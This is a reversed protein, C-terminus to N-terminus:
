NGKGTAGFVRVTLWVSVGMFLVDRLVTLLGSADGGTTSFCGCYVDLGRFLNFALASIFVTLLGTSIITAGPLWCGFILCLGVLLELFPLILAALNVLAHPLIQYNYVAKAFDAPNLIKDQAAYLFMAGLLFRLGMFIWHGSRSPQSLNM